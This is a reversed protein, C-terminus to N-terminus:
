AGRRPPGDAPPRSTAIELLLIPTSRCLLGDSRDLSDPRPRMVLKDHSHRRIIERNICGVNSRDPKPSPRVIGAACFVILPDNHRVFCFGGRLQASSSTAPKQPVEAGANGSGGNEGCGAGRAESEAGGGRVRVRRGVGRHEIEGEIEFIELGLEVQAGDGALTQGGVHGGAGAVFAEHGAARRHRELVRRDGIERLLDGDVLQRVDLEDAGHESARGHGLRLDVKLGNALSTSKRM